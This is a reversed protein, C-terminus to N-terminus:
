PPVFVAVNLKGRLSCQMVAYVILFLPFEFQDLRYSEDCVTTPLVCQERSALVLVQATCSHTPKSYRWWLLPAFRFLLTGKVAINLDVVHNQVLFVRRPHWGDNGLKASTVENAATIHLHNLTM